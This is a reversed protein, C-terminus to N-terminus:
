FFYIATYHEGFVSEYVITLSLQNLFDNFKNQMVKDSNSDIWILSQSDGVTILTDKTYWFSKYGKEVLQYHQDLYRWGADGLHEDLVEGNFAIYTKKIIAPGLGNNKLYIGIRDNDSYYLREFNLNPQLRIQNHRRTEIGEFVSLSLAALAIVVASISVFLETKNQKISM